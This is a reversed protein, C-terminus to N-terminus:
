SVAGFTISEAVSSFGSATKNLDLDIIKPTQWDQRKKTEENM